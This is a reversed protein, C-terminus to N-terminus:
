EKTIEYYVPVGKWSFKTNSVAKSFGGTANPYWLPIAPLDEFLIAQAEKYKANAEEQSSSKAAEVLLKDFEENSYDGDNSSGGTQYLPALFNGMSPYDAQWGTRFGTKITRNTVEDRLSKFDPYPAGVAEIGLTNKISNSVADVWSKHGGDSNYAIEFSPSSWKNMKDAKAWLEKAKEPDYKLVENGEIDESYGPLVPSTFDKAPTRTGKFITETIEDRNIAYSIAQRRLKGEEGSFHELNEGITFSQFGAYPQNSARDGLDSEYVDFAADPVADLLDLNGSLLDAYAADNSTYFVFKVGDNAVKQGGKYEENPVVTADQNHNWEALKYPGNGIPNQGFTELDDFASEHLPYFASYGLQAPFDQKPNNLEVTFTYDDEVKLGELEKVGEKFGKINSFFSANLQDNAVAYNWADVFNKATVPSGDSFNTKKLKITFKTNDKNPEISEAIENQAKGDADYYVLGSYISDVIRGGGTENTNAPILPNQPESGWATIYNGGSGNASGNDSGCAALALTLSAASVVAFTKKITM